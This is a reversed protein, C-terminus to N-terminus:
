LTKKQKVLLCYHRLTLLRQMTGIIVSAHAGFIEDLISHSSRHYNPSIIHLLILLRFVFQLLIQVSELILVLHYIANDLFGDRM